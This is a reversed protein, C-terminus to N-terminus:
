YKLMGKERHSIVRKKMYQLRGLYKDRYEFGRRNEIDDILLNLPPLIDIGHHNLDQRNAEDLVLLSYYLVLSRTKSDRRALYAKGSLTNLFFCAYEYLDKTSTQINKNKRKIGDTVWEYLLEMSPEIIEREHTLFGKGLSISEQGMVRYFHAMNHMLTVIDRTEESIVPPNSSLKGVLYLFHRQTGGEITCAKVYDRGDLYDFFIRVEDNLRAYYSEPIKQIKQPKKKKEIKEAVVAKEPKTQREREPPKIKKRYVVTVDPEKEVGAEEKKMEPTIPEKEVIHKRVVPKEELSKKEGPVFIKWNVVLIVAVVTVIIVGIAIIYKTSGKM